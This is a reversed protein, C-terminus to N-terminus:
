ELSPGFDEDSKEGDWDDVVHPSPAAEIEKPMIGHAKRHQELVAAVQDSTYPWKMHHPMTTRAWSQAQVLCEEISWEPHRKRFDEVTKGINGYPLGSKLYWHYRDIAADIAQSHSKLFATGGRPNPVAARFKSGNVVYVGAFGGASKASTELLSVDFAIAEQAEVQDPTTHAGDIGLMAETWEFGLDLKGNRAHLEIQVMLRDLAGRSTTHTLKGAKTLLNQMYTSLTLKVIM